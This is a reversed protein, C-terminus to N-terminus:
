VIWRIWTHSEYLAFSVHMWERWMYIINKNHLFQVDGNGDEKVTQRHCPNHIQIPLPRGDVDFGSIHMKLLLLKRSNTLITGACNLSFRTKKLTPRWRECECENTCIDMYYQAQGVYMHKHSHEHRDTHIKGHGLVCCLIAFVISKQHLM